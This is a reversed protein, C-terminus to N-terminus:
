TYCESFWSGINSGSRPEAKMDWKSTTGLNGGEDETNTLKGTFHLCRAHFWQPEELYSRLCCLSLQSHLILNLRDILKTQAEDIKHPPLAFPCSWHPIRRAKLFERLLLNYCLVYCSPSYAFTNVAFCSFCLPPHFSTAGSKRAM